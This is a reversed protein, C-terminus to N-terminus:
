RHGSRTTGREVLEVPVQIVREEIEIEEIIKILIRTALAGMKYIDQAVTTLGPTLMGGLSIGDFGMIQLQDPVSIGLSHAAKLAGAASVDTSAFIGDVGKINTLFTRAIKESEEFHFPSEIIHTQVKKGKVAKLFGTLRDDAPGLGKPGRMFVINQCGKELLYNTGM